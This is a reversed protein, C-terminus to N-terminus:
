LSIFEIIDIRYQDFDEIRYVFDFRQIFTFFEQTMLSLLLTFTINQPFNRSTQVCYFSINSSFFFIIIKHLMTNGM